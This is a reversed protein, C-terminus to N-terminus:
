DVDEFLEDARDAPWELAVALKRVQGPFPRLRGSEIQAVSSLHM